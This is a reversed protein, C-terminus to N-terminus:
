GEFADLIEEDYRMHSYMEYEYQPEPYNHYMVLINIYNSDKVTEEGWLMKCVMISVDIYDMGLRVVYTRKDEADHFVAFPIGNRDCFAEFEKGYQKKVVIEGYLQEEINGM